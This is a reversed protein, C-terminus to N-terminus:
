QELIWGLNKRRVELVVWSRLRRIWVGKTDAERWVAQRGSLRMGCNELQSAEERRRRRLARSKGGRSHGTLRLPPRVTLLVGDSVAEDVCQPPLKM